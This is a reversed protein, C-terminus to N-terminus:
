IGHETCSLFGCDCRIYVTEGYLGKITVRAKTKCKPCITKVKGTELMEMKANQALLDSLDSEQLLTENKEIKQTDMFCYERKRM